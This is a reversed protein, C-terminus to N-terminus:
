SPFGREDGRHATYLNVKKNWDPWDTQLPLLKRSSVGKADWACYKGLQPMITDHDM